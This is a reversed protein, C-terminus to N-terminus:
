DGSPAREGPLEGADGDQDREAAAEEARRRLSPDRMFIALCIGGVLEGYWLTCLRILMTSAVSISQSVGSAFKVVLLGLSGETAGLGGPLASLAGVLTTAAWLFVCLQLSAEVGAFGHLIAWYGVCELGWGVVSILSLVALPRIRLLIASSDVLGYAKRALKGILPLRGLFDLIWAFIRPTGMLVVGVIVLLMTVLAYPIFEPFDTIGVLMLVVLAVLDTLRDAVVIPATRAFPVGDSAKLLSSRLVEGVKGPTISMSLGALYIQLSRMRTLDPADGELVAKGERGRIQLWGLCLEWKWFRLLYNLSSLVLAVVVMLWDYGAMAKALEELGFYISAAAYLIAGLAVVVLTRRILRSV